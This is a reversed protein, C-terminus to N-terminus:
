LLGCHDRALGGSVHAKLATKPPSDGLICALGGLTGLSDGALGGSVWAFRTRTGQSDGAWLGGQAPGGCDEPAELIGFSYKSHLPRCGHKLMVIGISLFAMSKETLIYKEHASRGM